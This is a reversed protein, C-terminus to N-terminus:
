DSNRNRYGPAIHYTRLHVENTFLEQVRGTPRPRVIEVNNRTHLCYNRQKIISSCHDPVPNGRIDASLTPLSYRIRLRLLGREEKKDLYLQDM